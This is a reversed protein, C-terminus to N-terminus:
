GQSSHFLVPLLLFGDICRRIEGMHNRYTGPHRQLKRICDDIIDGLELPVYIRAKRLEVLAGEM